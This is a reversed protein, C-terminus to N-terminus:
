ELGVDFWCQKRSERAKIDKKAVAKSTLIASRLLVQREVMDNGTGATTQRTPVVDDGRTRRAIEGFAAVHGFNRSHKRHLCGLTWRIEFQMTISPQERGVVKM